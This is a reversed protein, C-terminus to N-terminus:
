EENDEFLRSKNISSDPFFKGSIYRFAHVREDTPVSTDSKHDHSLPTVASMTTM